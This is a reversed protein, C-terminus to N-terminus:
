SVRRWMYVSYYPPLQATNNETRGILKTGYYITREGSTLTGTIYYSSVYPDMGNVPLSVQDDDAVINGTTGLLISAASHNGLNHNHTASGGTNGVTIGSYGASVLFGSTIATWTGGFLSAPSTSQLSMYVAGVPYTKDLFDTVQSANTRPYLDTDASNEPHLVTPVIPM